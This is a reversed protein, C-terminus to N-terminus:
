WNRLHRHFLNMLSVCLAIGTNWYEMKGTASTSQLRSKMFNKTETAKRAKERATKPNGTQTPVENGWM